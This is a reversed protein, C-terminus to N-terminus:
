TVNQANNAREALIGTPAGSSGAIFRSMDAGGVNGRFARPDSSARGRFERGGTVNGYVIDNPTVSTGYMSGRGGGGNSGGSGVRNNADRVNSTDVRIQGYSSSALGAVSVAAVASILWNLKRQTMEVGRTLVVEGSQSNVSM